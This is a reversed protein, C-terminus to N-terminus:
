RKVTAGARPRARGHGRGRAACGASGARMRRLEHGDLEVAESLGRPSSTVFVADADVLEALAVARAEVALGLARAAELLAARCVGPLLGDVSPTVLVGGAVLAVNANTAEGM